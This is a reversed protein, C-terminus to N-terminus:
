AKGMLFLPLIAPKVREMLTFCFDGWLLWLFMVLLGMKTYTLGNISYKDKNSTDSMVGDKSSDPGITGPNRSM